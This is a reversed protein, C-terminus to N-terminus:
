PIASVSHRCAPCLRMSASRLEAYPIWPGTHNVLAPWAAAGILAFNILYATRMLYLRFTSVETPM